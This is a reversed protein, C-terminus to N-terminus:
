INSSANACIPLKCSLLQGRTGNGRIEFVPVRNVGDQIHKLILRSFGAFETFPNLSQHFPKFGRNLGTRTKTETEAFERPFANLVTLKSSKQRGCRQVRVSADCGNGGALACANIVPMLVTEEEAYTDEEKRRGRKKRGM